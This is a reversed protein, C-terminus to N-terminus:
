KGYKGLYLTISGEYDETKLFIGICFAKNIELHGQM